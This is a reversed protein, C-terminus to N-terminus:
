SNVVESSNNEEYPKIDFDKLQKTFDSGAKLVPVATLLGGGLLGLATGSITTIARFLAGKSHALIYGASGGLFATICSTIQVKKVNKDSSFSEVSDLVEKNAKEFSDVEDNPITVKQTLGDEEVQYITRDGATGIRQFIKVNNLTLGM